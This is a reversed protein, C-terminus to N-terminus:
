RVPFNIEIGNADAVHQPGTRPGIQKILILKRINGRM